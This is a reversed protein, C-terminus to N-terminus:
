FGIEDSGVVNTLINEEEETFSSDLVYIAAFTNVRPYRADAFLVSAAFMDEILIPGRIQFGSEITRNGAFEWKIEVFNTLVM